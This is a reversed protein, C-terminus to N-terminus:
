IWEINFGENINKWEIFRAADNLLRCAMASLPRPKAFHRASLWWGGERGPMQRLGLAAKRGFHLAGTLLQPMGFSDGGIVNEEAARPLRGTAVDFMLLITTTMHHNEILSKMWYSIIWNISLNAFWSADMQIWVNIFGENKNKENLLDRQMM